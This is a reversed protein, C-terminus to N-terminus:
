ATAKARYSHNGTVNCLRFGKIDQSSSLSPPRHFLSKARSSSCVVKPIAQKVGSLKSAGQIKNSDPASEFNTASLLTIGKKTLTLGDSKGFGSVCNLATVQWQVKM